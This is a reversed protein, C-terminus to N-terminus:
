IFSYKSLLKTDPLKQKPLTNKMLWLRLLEITAPLKQEPVSKSIQINKSFQVTAPLKEKPLAKKRWFDIHVEFVPQYSTAATIANSRLV